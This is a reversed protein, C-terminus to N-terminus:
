PKANASKGMWRVANEIVQLVVPNKFVPYLEHGPRFYFVKGLGVNWVSGSRFWEGSEWHEELVVADPLPVHFPEDYMETQDITFEKPLGRAIPHNQLLVAVHSPKGDPRFAPFCCNPVTLQIEVPGSFPKRVLTSPTLRDSYKPAVRLVPYQNTESLIATARESAPVARLADQRAREKMAEMFPASWHASHLAILSLRGSKIREAIARGTEPKVDANRVHGWWILVDCADLAAGSLGQDPDDLKHSEVSLGPKSRLFAAIENGLFNSYATKQAPQQEDWVLVRIDAAVASVAGLFAVLGILALRLQWRFYTM